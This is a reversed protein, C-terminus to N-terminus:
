CPTSVGHPAHAMGDVSRGPQGCSACLLGELTGVPDPADVFPALMAFLQLLTADSLPFLGAEQVM